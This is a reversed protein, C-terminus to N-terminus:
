HDCPGADASIEGTVSSVHEVNPAGAVSLDLREGPVGLDPHTLGYEIVGLMIERPEIVYQLIGVYEEGVPARGIQLPIPEIALLEAYPLRSQDVSRKDRVAVFAGPLATGSKVFGTRRDGPQEAIFARGGM